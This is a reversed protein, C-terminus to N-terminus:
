ERSARYEELLAQVRDFMGAPVITGRIKPYIEEALRRWAAEIEPTSRQVRLGRKQMAAVSQESELRGRQTMEKGAEQAPQRFASQWEKPFGNWTRKDIVIAGVFPAWNIELMYKARTDFQGALAGMPPSPIANILGTQLGTLIDNTELTVPNYGAAKIIDAEASDGAWTFIKMKKLEAPYMLPDKSFYRVWGVDGWSLVVFGKDLFRREIDPALQQQVYDVEALSRFMMPLDELSSASPEIELLGQVALLGAQLQKVRMRRVSEAEGGQSGDTYVTVQVQSGSSKRWQEGMRLLAQHASTGKPAITALKIATPTQGHAPTVTLLFAILIVLKEIRTRM